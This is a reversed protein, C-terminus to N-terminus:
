GVSEAERILCWKTLNTDGEWRTLVFRGHIKQGHIVFVVRDREWEESLYVGRDAIEVRGQNEVGRRPTPGEYSGYEISHSPTQIALRRVGSETPLGKPVAWSRLTGNLELRLDFHHATAWHEQLVYMRTPLLDDNAKTM